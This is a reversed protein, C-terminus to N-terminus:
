NSTGRFPIVVPTDGRHEHAERRLHPDLSDVATRLEALRKQVAAADADSPFGIAVGAAGTAVLAELDEAVIRNSLVVAPGRVAAVALAIWLLEDGGLRPDRGAVELFFGEVPLLAAARLGDLEIAQDLHAYMGRRRPSFCAALCDRPRLAAADMGAAMWGDVDAGSLPRSSRPWAVLPWDAEVSPRELTQDAQVPLLAADVRSERAAGVMGAGLTPLAALLALEPRRVSAQRPRGFGVTSSEERGARRLLDFLRSHSATPPSGEAM